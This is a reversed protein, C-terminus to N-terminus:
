ARVEVEAYWTGCIRNGGGKDEEACGEIALTWPGTVDPAAFEVSGAYGGPALRCGDDPGYFTEGSLRGCLVHATDIFWQGVRFSLGEGRSVVVPAMVEWPRIDGQCGAESQYGLGGSRLTVVVDCGATALTSDGDSVLMAEPVVFDGVKIPWSAKVELDALSLLARLEVDALGRHGFFNLQFRNQSAYAPRREPNYLADLIVGCGPQGCPHSLEITWAHACARGAIWLETKADVPVEIRPGSSASAAGGSGTPDVSGPAPVVEVLGPTAVGDVVLLVAPPQTPAPGCEVAPRVRPSEYGALVGTPIGAAPGSAAGATPVTSPSPRGGFLGFGTALLGVAGAIALAGGVGLRATRRSRAPQLSLEELEAGGTWPRPDGEPRRGPVRDDRRRIM